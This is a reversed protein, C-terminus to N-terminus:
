TQKAFLIRKLIVLFCVITSFVIGSKFKFFQFKDILYSRGYENKDRRIMARRQVFDESTEGIPVSYRLVNYNNRICYMSLHFDLYAHKYRPINNLIESLESKMVFFNGHACEIERENDQVTVPRINRSFSVGGFIIQKRIPNLVQGYIFDYARAQLIIGLENLSQREVLLDESIHVIYDASDRLAYTLLSRVSSAWFEDEDLILTKSICELQKAASQSFVGVFFELDFVMKWADRIQSINRLTYNLDRYCVILVSLRQKKNM